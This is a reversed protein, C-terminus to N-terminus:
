TTQHHAPRARISRSARHLPAPRPPPSPAAVTAAGHSGAHLRKVVTAHHLRVDHHHRMRGRGVSPVGGHQHDPANWNISDPAIARRSRRVMRMGMSIPGRGPGLRTPEATSAAPRPGAVAAGQRHRRSVSAAQRSARQDQRRHLHAAGTLPVRSALFRGGRPAAASARQGGRSQWRERLDRLSIRGGGSNCGSFVLVKERRVSPRVGVGM